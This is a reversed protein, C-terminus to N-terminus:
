HRVSDTLALVNTQGQLAVVVHDPEIAVVQVSSVDEGVCLVKGNILASSRTGRFIISQLRLSPFTVVPAPETLPVPVIKRAEVPRRAPLRRYTTHVYVLCASLSLLLGWHRATGLCALPNHASTDSQSERRGSFWMVLGSIGFVLCFVAPYKGLLDIHLVLASGGIAMLVVLALSFGIQVRTAIALKM